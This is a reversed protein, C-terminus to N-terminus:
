DDKAGNKSMDLLYKCEEKNDRYCTKAKSESVGMDKCVRRIAENYGINKRTRRIPKEYAGGSQPLLATEKIRRGTEMLYVIEFAISFAEKKQRQTQRKRGTEKRTVPLHKNVLEARDKAGTGELLREEKLIRDFANVLYEMTEPAQKGSKYAYIFRWMHWLGLPMQDNYGNALDFHEPEPPITNEDSM